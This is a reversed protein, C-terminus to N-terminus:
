AQLAPGILGECSAVQAPMEDVSLLRKKEVILLATYIGLRKFVKVASLDVLCRVNFSKAIRKRLFRANDALLFAQPLVLCVFGGSAVLELCLKVFAIYSDIRGAAEDGLYSTYVRVENPTLNELKVYPPNALVAGFSAKSLEEKLALGVADARLVNFSEPLVGVAVLHLLALSLATAECANPDRDIAQVGAFNKIISQRTTGVTLAARFSLCAESSFERGARLTLPGCNASLV